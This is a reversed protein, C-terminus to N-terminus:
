RITTPDLNDGAVLNARAGRQNPYNVQTGGMLNNFRNRYAALTPATLQYSLDFNLPVGQLLAQKLQDPLETNFRTSISLQGNSTVVAQARTNSIGEALSWPAALLLCLLALLPSLKTLLRTTFAM